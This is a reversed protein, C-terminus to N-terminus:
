GPKQLPKPPAARLNLPQAHAPLCTAVVADRCPWAGAAEQHAHKTALFFSSQRPTKRRQRRGLLRWTASRLCTSSRGGHWGSRAVARPPPAAAGRPGRTAGSPAGDANAAGRRTGCPDRAKGGICAVTEGAHVTASMLDLRCSLFRPPCSNQASGESPLSARPQCTWLRIRAAAPGICPRRPVPDPAPLRQWAATVELLRGRRTRLLRRVLRGSRRAPM